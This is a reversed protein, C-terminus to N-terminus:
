RLWEATVYSAASATAVADAAEPHVAVVVM